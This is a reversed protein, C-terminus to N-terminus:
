LSQIKDRLADLDKDLKSTKKKEKIIQKPKGEKKIPSEIKVNPLIALKKTIEKIEGLNKEFQKQYLEKEKKIQKYKEYQKLVKITDITSSLIKKRCKVPENIGIHM